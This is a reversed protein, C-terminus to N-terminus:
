SFVAGHQAGVRDKPLLVHVTTGKGKTSEIRLSGGHLETLRQALPLGLGTGEHTRSLSSDVQGFPELAIEIERPTMGIGNDQVTLELGGDPAIAATLSVEGGAETFKVANSMLNLLIQRLKTADARVAPLDDPVSMGIKIDRARARGAVAILSARAEDPINVISEVLRETGSEVKSIDLITNILELLHRGSALIDAAFEGITTTKGGITSQDHILESFGIIAHLPTRLEHSMNALFRSKAQNAAEARDVAAVLEANARSLKTQEEQIRVRAAEVRGREVTLEVDRAIRRRLERVLLVALGFVLTTMGVGIACLIWAQKRAEALLDAVDLGVNVILPYRELRRYSYQRDITTVDGSRYYAGFAGAPVNEPWPTSGRISEGLGVEGEPHDASVRIRVIDDIGVISLVGREGLDVTEHVRTLEVPPVTLALVGRFTGDHGIIAKTFYIMKEPVARSTLPESIYLGYEPHDKHIRFHLRDSLDDITADAPHDRAPNTSFIVKGNADLVTLYRAPAALEGLDAAWRSLEETRPKGEADIPMRHIIVNMAGDIHDITGTLEVAFAAALNRGENLGSQLGSGRESLILLGIFIWMLAAIVAALIVIKRVLRRSHRHARRIYDAQERPTDYRTM